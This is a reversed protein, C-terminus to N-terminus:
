SGPSLGWYRVVHMLPIYSATEGRGQKLADGAGQPLQCSPQRVPFDKPM